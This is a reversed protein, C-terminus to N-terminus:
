RDNEAEQKAALATTKVQKGYSKISDRYALLKAKTNNLAERINSTATNSRTNECSFKTSRLTALRESVALQRARMDATLADNDPVTLNKEIVFNEIGSQVSSYKDFYKQAVASKEDIFNNIREERAKCADERKDEIYSQLSRRQENKNDNDRQTWSRINSRREDGRENDALAVYSGSSAIVLSLLIAILTKQQM